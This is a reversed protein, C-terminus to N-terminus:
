IENQSGKKIRAIRDIALSLWERGMEDFQHEKSIIRVHNLNRPTPAYVVEFGAARIDEVFAGSLTDGRRLKKARELGFMIGYETGIDLNTAISASKGPMIITGIPKDDVGQRLIFNGPKNNSGFVIIENNPLLDGPNLKIKPYIIV